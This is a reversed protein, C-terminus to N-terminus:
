NRDSRIATASLYTLETGTKIFFLLQGMCSILMHLKLRHGKITTRQLAFLHHEPSPHLLFIFSCVLSTRTFSFTVFHSTHTSFVFLIAAGYLTISASYQLSPISLECPRHATAASHDRDYLDPALDLSPQGPSYILTQSPCYRKHKQYNQMMYDAREHNTGDMM